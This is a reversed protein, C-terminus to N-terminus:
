PFAHRKNGAAANQVHSRHVDGRDDHRQPKLPRCREKTNAHLPASKVIIYRFINPNQTQLLYPSAGPGLAIPLRSCPQFAMIQKQGQVSLASFLPQTSRIITLNVLWKSSLVQSPRSNQDRVRCIQLPKDQYRPFRPIDWEPRV